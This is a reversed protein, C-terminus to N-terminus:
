SNKGSFCSQQEMYAPSIPLAQLETDLIKDETVKNCLISM